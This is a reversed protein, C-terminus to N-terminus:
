FSNEDIELNLYKAIMLGLIPRWRKGGRDLLDWMPTNVANNISQLTIKDRINAYPSLSNIEFYSALDDESKFNRPLIEELIKSQDFLNKYNKMIKFIPSHSDTISEGQVSFFKQVTCIGRPNIFRNFKIM